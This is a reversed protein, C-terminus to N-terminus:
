RSAAVRDTFQAIQDHKLLTNRDFIETRLVIPLMYRTFEPSIPQTVDIVEFVEVGFYRVLSVDIKGEEYMTSILELVPLVYGHAIMHVFRDIVVRQLTLTKNRPYKFDQINVQRSMIIEAIEDRM